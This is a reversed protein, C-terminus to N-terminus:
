RGGTIRIIQQEFTRIENELHRIRGQIIRQRLWDPANKLLGNNDFADPNNRYADLKQQHEGIRRELSRVTRADSSSLGGGGSGERFVLNSLSRGHATGAAAGVGTGVSASAVAAPALLGGSLVTAAVGAGGGGIFGATAGLLTFAGEFLACAVDKPDPCLGFPDTYSAPNNGAYAYLNEGGAYGLPDEQTFRGIRADYWRNRFYSMGVEADTSRGVGFGFSNQAAGAHRGAQEWAWPVLPQPPSGGIETKCDQGRVNHFHLFRGHVTLFYKENSPGLAGTCWDPDQVYALLPDDIGPGSLFEAAGYGNHQLHDLTDRKGVLRGLGDYHFLPFPFNPVGIFKGDPRHLDIVSDGPLIWWASDTNVWNRSGNLDYRFTDRQIVQGNSGFKLRRAVRQTGPFLKFVASDSFAGAVWTKQAQMTGTSDYRFVTTNSNASDIVVYGRANYTYRNSLVGLGTGPGSTALHKVRGAADYQQYVLEFL